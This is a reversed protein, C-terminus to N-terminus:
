AVADPLTASCNWCVEFGGPSTEDCAKCQKAAAEPERLEYRAIITRAHQEQHPQTIWVQPSAAGSPLEGLVSMANENFIHAPIGEHTLLDRLM